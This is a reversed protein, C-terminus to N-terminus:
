VFRDKCQTLMKKLPFSDPNITYQICVGLLSTTFLKTEIEPNIYKKIKLYEQLKKTYNIYIPNNILYESAVQGLTKQSLLLLLFNWQLTENNLSKIIRQILLNLGDNDLNKKIDFNLLIIDITEKVIEDFIEEKSKYYHYFSGKSINAKLAIDAISTQFYGNESFLKLASKCIKNKTNQKIENRKM